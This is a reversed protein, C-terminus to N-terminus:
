RDVSHLISETEAIQADVNKEMSSIEFKMRFVGVLRKQNLVIGGANRGHKNRVRKVFGEDELM